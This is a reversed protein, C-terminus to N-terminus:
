EIVEDARAVLAQPLRLGIARAVKLNVSLVFKDPAQVPLDGTKEGKLIRDVYGAARRYIDAYDPSYVILGGSQAFIPNGYIAPLRHQATLAIILDRRDAVFTDAIGIIGGGGERARTSLAGQIDPDSDCPAAIVTARLVQAAAQASRLYGEAFPATKPNFLLAVRTVEPAAEKLLALWKGGVSPEFTSFGTVKGGPQGLNQVIGSGTPDAVLVFIVPVSAHMLAATAPTSRSLVLDPHAAMIEAAVARVRAIQAGPWHYSLNINRGRTWGLQKLSSEFATLEAEGSADGFELGGLLVAVHRMRDPQQTHAAFPRGVAAGSLLAIFERRRM